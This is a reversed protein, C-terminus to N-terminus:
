REYLRKDKRQERQWAVPYDGFSKLGGNKSCAEMLDFLHKRKEKNSNRLVDVADKTYSIQWGNRAALKQLKKLDKENDTNVTITTM